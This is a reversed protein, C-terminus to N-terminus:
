ASRDLPVVRDPFAAALRRDASALPVGLAEALAVYECDYASCGSAAALEVVRSSPPSALRDAFLLGARELAVLAGGLGVTGQRVHGLLAQRIESLVLPPAVWDSDREFLAQSAATLPSELLWFVVVNADVVIM